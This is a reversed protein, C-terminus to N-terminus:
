SINSSFNRLKRLFGLVRFKKKERVIKAAKKGKEGFNEAKIQDSVAKFSPSSLSHSPLFDGLKIRGRKMVKRQMRWEAQSELDGLGNERSAKPLMGSQINVELFHLGEGGGEM